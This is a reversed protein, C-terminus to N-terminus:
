PSCSRARSSPSRTPNMPARPWPSSPARSMTSRCPRPAAPLRRTPAPPPWPGVDAPPHAGATLLLQPPPAAPEGDIQAVRLFMLLRGTAPDVGAHETFAVSPGTAGTAVLLPGVPGAPHVDTAM